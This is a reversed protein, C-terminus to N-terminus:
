GTRPQADGQHALLALASDLDPCFSVRDTASLLEMRRLASGGVVIRPAPAPCSAFAEDLRSVFDMQGPLAVSVGVHGPELDRVLTCVQRVPMGPYIAFVPIGRAILLFEIMRLGLFHFNEEACILLVRPSQSQRLDAVRTRAFLTEIIMLSLSSFSHEAAVSIDGREWKEGIDYLLPQLMGVLLDEPRVGLSVGIDILRDVESEDAISGTQQLREQFDRLFRIRGSDFEGQRYSSMCADCIGHTIEYHDFPEQEGLFRCCYSCWRFM